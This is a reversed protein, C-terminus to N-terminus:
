RQERQNKLYEILRPGPNGGARGQQGADLWEEERARRVWTRATPTPVGHREAMFVVPQRPERKLTDLYELAVDRYFEPSRSGPGRRPERRRLSAVRRYAQTEAKHLRSVLEPPFREDGAYRIMARLAARGDTLTPDRRLERVIQEKIRGLPIERLVASTVDSPSSISISRLRLMGSDIAAVAAVRLDGIEFVFRPEGDGFELNKFHARVRVDYGSLQWTEM